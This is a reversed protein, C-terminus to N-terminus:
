PFSLWTNASRFAMMVVVFIVAPLIFALRRIWQLFTRSPLTEFAAMSSM